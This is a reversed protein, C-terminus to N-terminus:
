FQIVGARCCHSLHLISKVRRHPLDFAFSKKPTHVAYLMSHLTYTLLRHNTHANYVHTHTHTQSEYPFICKGSQFYEGLM